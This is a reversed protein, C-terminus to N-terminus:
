LFRIHLDVRFRREGARRGPHLGFCDAIRPNLWQLCGKLIRQNNLCPRQALVSDVHDPVGRRLVAIGPPGACGNALFFYEKHGIQYQYRMNQGRRKQKVTEGVQAARQRLRPLLIPNKGEHSVRRKERILLCAINKM